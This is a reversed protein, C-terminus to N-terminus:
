RLDSLTEGDCFTVPLLENHPIEKEGDLVRLALSFAYEGLSKPSYEISTIKYFHAFEPGSIYGCVSIDQPVKIDLRRCHGIFDAAYIDNECIVATYDKIFHALTRKFVAANGIPLQAHDIERLEIGLENAREKAGLFRERQVAVTSPSSYHLVKRHGRKWIEEMLIRGATYNDPNIYYTNNDSGHKVMTDLCFVPVDPLDIVPCDGGVFIADPQLAAIRESFVQYNKVFGIPLITLSSGAAYASEELGKLLRAYFSHTSPLVGFYVFKKVPFLEKRLLITGGAGRTRKFYGLTVLRSVARNATGKDVNFKKALQYESPIRGGIKYSGNQIRELLYDVLYQEKEGSMYM